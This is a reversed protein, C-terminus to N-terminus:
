PCGSPAEYVEVRNRGGAKARYLARDAAAVKELATLDSGPPISAVGLSLTVVGGVSRGAHPIAEAEAAARIKEALAVTRAKDLGPLLCVFEEGGYRAALDRDSPMCGGITVALSKLCEDGAPHGYRDNYDKFYDIDIMIISLAKGVKGSRGHELALREDFYRRNALGTLGDTDSEVQLRDILALYADEATKRAEIDTLMSFAGAFKGDQGLISRSSVLMWVKRGDKTLYQREGVWGEGGMRQAWTRQFDEREEPPLFVEYPRGIVEDPEYGLMRAMQENVFDVKWEKDVTGVGIIASDILTRYRRESHRLAEEMRKRDDIDTYMAFLGEASGDGRLVAVASVLLWRDRGDKRVFRREYVASEGRLRREHRALYDAMELPHIFERINHGLLEYVEYGLMDAMRQNTFTITSDPEFCLIGEQATEVIRRYREESRALEEEARVEDSADYGVVLIEGSGGDGVPIVFIQIWARAPGLDIPVVCRGLKGVQAGELLPRCREAASAPIAETFPEGEVAGPSVRMLRGFAANASKCRLNGADLVAVFTDDSEFLFTLKPDLDM